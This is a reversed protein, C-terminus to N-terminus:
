GGEGAREAMEEDGSGNESSTRDEESSGVMRPCRELLLYSLSQFVELTSSHAHVTFSSTQDFTSEVSDDEPVASSTEVSTQSHSQRYFDFYLFFDSLLFCSSLSPTSFRSSEAMGMRIPTSTAEYPVWTSDGGDGLTKGVQNQVSGTEM